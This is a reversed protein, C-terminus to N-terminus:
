TTGTVNKDKAFFGLVIAAVAIIGDLIGQPIDVGFAKLVSAIGLVIGSVTTKWNIM